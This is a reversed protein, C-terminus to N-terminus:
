GGGDGGDSADTAGAECGNTSGDILTYGAPLDCACSCQISGNDDCLAYAVSGTCGYCGNGPIQEAVNGCCSCQPLPNSTTQGPFSGEAVAGQANLLTYGCTVQCTCDSYATGTCQAFAQGGDESSCGPCQNVPIQRAVNGTCVGLSGGDYLYPSSTQSVLCAAALMTASAAICTVGLVTRLRM